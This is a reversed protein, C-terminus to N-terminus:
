AARLFHVANWRVQIMIQKTGTGGRAKQYRRNEDLLLLVREQIALIVANKNQGNLGFLKPSSYFM